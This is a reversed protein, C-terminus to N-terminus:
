KLDPHFRFWFEVHPSSNFSYPFFRFPTLCVELRDLEYVLSGDLGDTGNSVHHTAM